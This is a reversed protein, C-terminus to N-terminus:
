RAGLCLCLRASCLQNVDTPTFVQTQNVSPFYTVIDYLTNMSIKSIFYSLAAILRSQQNNDLNSISFKFIFNM